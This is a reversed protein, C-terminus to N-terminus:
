QGDYHDPEHYTHSPHFFVALYIPYLLKHSSCFTAIFTIKLPLSTKTVPERLVCSPYPALTCAQCTIFRTVKKFVEFEVFVCFNIHTVLREKERGVLEAWLSCRTQPVLAVRAMGIRNVM